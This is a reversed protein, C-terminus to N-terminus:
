WWGLLKWWGLGVTLWIALHFLSVLFGIRFWARAPVYGLGFYIIIPGSSYNTTCGCLNSFYAFLPVALLAPAGVVQCVALFAAAMASIHATLMSFGYMSYFYALGLLVVTPLVDLGAVQEKVSAAFWDVVGLDKLRDAMTLLGGLGLLADWAAPDGTMRGWTQARAALLVAVGFLAVETTGFEHVPGEMGPLVVGKTSWLLILLAFVVAMVVQARTWPGMARLEERAQAQAPRGDRVTPPALLRIWLPLLALGVLGPVLAGLAWTGWGFEIGYVDRAADALLSNAAMGTLFMAATILNAHAGVLALYAGAREPSTRPESGLAASISASIPALIGGGRATNSPVLPGLVLEAAVQAYGLGLTSRGLAAVLQLAVRRGLGTDRVAGALLFAAVVLWVVPEGYGALAEETTLIRTGLCTVIGFLVLPGMAFPQLLFGAIVAAFVAFLNWGALPVDAPPGALRVAIGLAVCAALRVLRDLPTLEKHAVM